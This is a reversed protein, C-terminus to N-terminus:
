GLSEALTSVSRSADPDYTYKKTDWDIAYDSAFISHPGVVLLHLEDAVTLTATTLGQGAWDIDKRDFTLMFGDGFETVDGKLSTFYSRQYYGLIPVVLSDKERKWEILKPDTSLQRLATVTLTVRIM